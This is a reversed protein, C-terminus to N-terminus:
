TIPGRTWIGKLALFIVPQEKSDKNAWTGKEPSRKTGRQLDKRREKSIKKFFLSSIPLYSHLLLYHDFSLTFCFLCLLTYILSIGIVIAVFICVVLLCLLTTIFPLHRCSCLYLNVLLSIVIYSSFLDVIQNYHREALSTDM